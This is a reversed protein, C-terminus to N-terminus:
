KPVRGLAAEVLDGGNERQIVIRTNVPYRKFLTDVLSDPDAAQSVFTDTALDFAYLHGGHTEIKLEVTTRNDIAAAEPKDVEMDAIAKLLQKDTVGLDELIQKTIYTQIWASVKWGVIFSIVIYIFTEM